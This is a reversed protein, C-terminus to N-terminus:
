ACLRMMLWCECVMRMRVEYSVIKKEIENKKHEIIYNM